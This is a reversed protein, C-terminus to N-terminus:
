PPASVEIMVLVPCRVSCQLCQRNLSHCVFNRRRRSQEIHLVFPETNSRRSKIVLVSIALAPKRSRKVVSGKRTKRLISLITSALSDKDQPWVLQIRSCCREISTVGETPSLRGVYCEDILEHAEAIDGVGERSQQERYSSPVYRTPARSYAGCTGLFTIKYLLYPLRGSSKLSFSVTVPKYCEQHQAVHPIPTLCSLSM